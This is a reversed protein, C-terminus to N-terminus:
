KEQIDIGKRKTVNVFEDKLEEYLSRGVKICIEFCACEHPIRGRPHYLLHRSGDSAILFAERIQGYRGEFGSVDSTVRYKVKRTSTIKISKM